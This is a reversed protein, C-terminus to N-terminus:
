AEKPQRRTTRRLSSRCVPCAAGPSPLPQRRRQPLWLPLSPLEAATSEQKRKPLGHATQKTPPAHKKRLAHLTVCNWDFGTRWCGQRPNRADQSASPRRTCGTWNSESVLEEIELTQLLLM